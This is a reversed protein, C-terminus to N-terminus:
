MRPMAADEIRDVSPLYPKIDIVPTGDLADIAELELVGNERDLSLIRVAHLGIPNPRVPSRLAFTGRPTSAHAPNQVALDRRTRDFWTLVIIYNATELGALAPRYMDKVLLRATLGRERAERMNKPCTKRSMWPTELRGVFVIGADPELFAPDRELPVEGDRASDM